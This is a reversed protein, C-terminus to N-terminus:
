GGVRDMWTLIKEKSPSMRKIWLLLKPCVNTQYIYRRQSPFDLNNSQTKPEVILSFNRNIKFYNQTIQIKKVVVTIIRQFYYNDIRHIIFFNSIKRRNNSIKQDNDGINNSAPTTDDDNDNIIKSFNLHKKYNFSIINYWKILVLFVLCSPLALMIKLLLSFLLLIIM